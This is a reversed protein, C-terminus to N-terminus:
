SSRNIILYQLVRHRYNSKLLCFVKFKFDTDKKKHTIKKDDVGCSMDKEECM